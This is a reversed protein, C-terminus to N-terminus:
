SVDKAQLRQRSAPIQYEARNGADLVHEPVRILRDEVRAHLLPQHLASEREAWICVGVCGTLDLVRWSGNHGGEPLSTINTCILQDDFM